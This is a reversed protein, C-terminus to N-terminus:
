ISPQQNRDESGSVQKGQVVNQADDRIELAFHEADDSPRDFDVTSFSASADIHHSFSLTTGLSLSTQLSIDLSTQASSRLALNKRARGRWKKLGTVVTETFVAKRMSTGM